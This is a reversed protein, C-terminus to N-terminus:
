IDLFAPTLLIKESVKYQSLLNLMPEIKGINELRHADSGLSLMPKYSNIGDFFAQYLAQQSGPTIIGGQPALDTNIELAVQHEACNKILTDIM